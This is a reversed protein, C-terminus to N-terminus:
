MTDEIRKLDRKRHPMSRAMERFAFEMRELLFRRKALERCYWREWRANARRIQDRTYPHDDFAIAHSRRLIKRAQRLKM